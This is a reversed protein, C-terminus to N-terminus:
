WQGAQEHEPTAAPYPGGGASGIREDARGASQAPDAADPADGSTDREETATEAAEQAAHVPTGSHRTPRVHHRKRNPGTIDPRYRSLGICSLDISFTYVRFPM